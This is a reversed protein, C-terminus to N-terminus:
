FTRNRLQEAVEVASLSRETELLESLNFMRPGQIGGKTVKIMETKFIEDFLYYRTEGLGVDPYYTCVVSAREIRDREDETLKGKEVETEQFEGDIVSGRVITKIEAVHGICKDRYLGIFKAHTRAPRHPPCFYLRLDVNEDYSTGCPPVFMIEGTELLDEEKLFEEYDELIEKLSTEHDLRVKELQSVIDKFTTAVFIVGKKKAIEILENETGKDIPTKTLGILIKKAHIREKKSISDIHRKIQDHDLNGGRKTEFYIELPKQSIHADPISSSDPLKIQQEFTLGVELDEGEVLESFLREIKDPSSQYFHRILLLTNNTAHNERQSFRQFYSVRSM